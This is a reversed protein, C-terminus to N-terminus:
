GPGTAALHARAMPSLYISRVVDKDLWATLEAAKADLARRADRPVGEALLVDVTGEPQQCWVGVIRGNWWATPGANGNRDFVKDAHAGLHFGREKWGMTTPDLSPLLAAWPGPDAVPDLDDPLVWGVGEGDLSVPVAEVDAIARRVAAKTAGLWWVLDAETGPGFSRLWAAVLAAYGEAEPLPEVAEGLWQAAATWRPRSLKWGGDNEGRVIAGSAALTVIVSAAVAVDVRYQGKGRSVRADLAPLATRVQATTLPGDEEIMRRVLDLHETAWADGDTAIGTTEMEKAMRRVQQAAVRASASGWVAPLLERPFAFVTRRMALQKVVSRDAYLARDVEDRTAGSRAWAALHVSAPETAHLCTVARAAALTDGVPVALGHRVGLRARREDDDIHRAVESM